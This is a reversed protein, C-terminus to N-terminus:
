AARIALFPRENHGCKRSLALVFLIRHILALYGASTLGSTSGPRPCSAEPFGSLKGQGTTLVAAGCGHSLWLSLTPCVFKVTRSSRLLHKASSLEAGRHTSNLPIAHQSLRRAM